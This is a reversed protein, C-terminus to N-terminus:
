NYNKLNNKVAKFFISAQNNSVDKNFEDKKIKKHFQDVRNYVSIKTEKIKKLSEKTKQIVHTSGYSLSAQYINGTRAVTVSPGLLAAGPVSCNNLIILLSLIIIKKFM